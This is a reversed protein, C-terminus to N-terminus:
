RCVDACGEVRMCHTGRVPAPGERFLFNLLFVVDTLNAAKDDDLDFVALNAGSSIDAGDCPLAKASGGFLRLLFSVADSIDVDGDQNSDGALQLGGVAGSDDFGPTGGALSSPSWSPSVNWSALDGQPDVINLSADLGDTSPYWDDSYTFDLIPENLPGRVVLREGGNSLNGTYEGAVRIGATGYRQTFAALNKVVLVYEGPAVSGSGATFTFTVGESIQFGALDLPELGANMLEMYEYDDEDVNPAESMPHYMLETVVLRPTEVVFTFDTTGSWGGASPKARAIVRTNANLTIPQGYTLAAALKAGGPNRPDKGDLTYYIPTSSPTATMTLQFGPSIPGGERSFVPPRTYQSDWWTLRDDLWEAMWVVEDEYTQGVFWNPWVKTGLIQWKQHDRVESEALLTATAEIDSQLLSRELPARRFQTWRDIYRQAFDPDEFLRSYWPYDGAGLQPYYWGTAMWGQLYDANGLSLNYDWVPGMNLKGGRDKFMFTSLRFGDINKTLEVIIHHDIFSDVDIYKRYGNVPDKFSAGYLATEFDSFFSQLYARQQSTIVQEKPDVFGLVHGRSTSMGSDGPDLRDKKLIYGGTIDPATNESANLNAIDVRDEGRKIKEMFCYVGVYDSTDLNGGNSNVYLEIYRTKVAWRGIRNSWLYSLQDRMLTKDTYPGLLIWDSEASFGLISADLDNGREDRVEFAYNKKPFGLSSSGRTKIASSGDFTPVSTIATRGGAGEEMVAAFSPTWFSDNVGQGFTEVIMIPLNSTFSRVNTGLLVYTQTVTPSPAFSGEIAKARVMTTASITIPGSYVPSSATPVSRDTTYHIVAGANPSTITLSFSGTILGSPRSFLPKASIGPYGALNGIRPSPRDFYQVVNRDLSGSAYADLEPLVLFDSSTVGSNLGHIALVNAGSKLLGVRSSIDTEEFIVAAADDHQASAGSDWAPTAPANERAVETGNLYAVFGDDFKMRLFLGSLGAPSDLTFPFRAYCTTSIGDMQADVNAGLLPLYDPNNDYGVGSTGSTWGTDVFGTQTWTLALNGSTPVLWKCPADSRVLHLLTSDQKLGYSIDEQQAPFTPAYDHAITVGDPRILGLYEGTSLLEFNTHLPAGATRRDKGSAFVILFGQAPISVSPFQWKALVQDDDTLYWGNLNVSTAGANYLEIWDSDDGDDDQLASENSAMFETILVDDAAPVFRAASLVALCAALATKASVIKVRLM